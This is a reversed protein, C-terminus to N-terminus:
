LVMEYLLFDALGTDEYFIQQEAVLRFGCRPYLREAPLNGKLVDLRIVKKGQARCVDACYNVLKKAFGRGAFDSHVVLLHIVGVEEPAAKTPWDVDNYIEDNGTIVAACAIRGDVRGIHMAGSEVDGRLDERSPYVDKTWKPGFEREGQHDIIDYYFDIIEELENNQAQRIILDKKIDETM